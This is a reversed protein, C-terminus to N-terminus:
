RESLIAMAEGFDQIYTYTHPLDVAGVLSATKGALAAGLASEGLSSELVCPGYFDAGRAMAVRVKGSQHAAILAESMEARVKGKRTQAAYPLGEHIPGKVKGYMYLNEAVILKAGNAATGELIAAQFPPFKEVWETYAPQACQFVAEAGGTVNRTFATDNADGASVEVGEPVVAKGSRNIMRVKEGRKLLAKMVANGLPGTGFVVNMEPM